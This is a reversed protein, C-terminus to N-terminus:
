NCGTPLRYGSEHENECDARHVEAVFKRMKDGDKIYEPGCARSRKNALTVAKLGYILEVEEATLYERRKLREIQGISDVVPTLLREFTTQLNDAIEEPTLKPIDM